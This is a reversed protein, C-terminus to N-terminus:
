VATLDTMDIFEVDLGWTLGFEALWKRLGWYLTRAVLVHDGPLLSQFVATAAAM